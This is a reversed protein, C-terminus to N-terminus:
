PIDGSFHERLPVIIRQGVHHILMCLEASELGPFLIRFYIHVTGFNKLREINSRVHELVEDTTGDVNLGSMVPLRVQKNSGTSAEDEMWRRNLSQMFGYGESMRAHEVPSDTFVYSQGLAVTYTSQREPGLAQELRSINSEIAASTGVGMIYGDAMSAAREIAAPAYGGVLIPPRVIASPSIWADGVGDGQPAVQGSLLVPLMRLHRELLASRSTRDIGFAEYECSRYGLGLGLIGRGKSIAQLMAVDEALRIPHHFPALVVATGLKIRSTRTAIAALGMLPSGWYQAAAQHHESAWISDFGAGEAAVAVDLLGDWWRSMAPPETVHPDVGTILGVGFNLEM